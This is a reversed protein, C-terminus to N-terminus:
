STAPRVGVLAIFRVAADPDQRATGALKATAPDKPFRLLASRLLAARIASTRSVGAEAGYDLAFAAAIGGIADPRDLRALAQAASLRVADDSDTLLKQLITAAREPAAAGLADATQWRLQAIAGQLKDKKALSRGREGAAFNGILSVAQKIQQYTSPSALGLGGTLAMTLAAKVFPAIARWISRFGRPDLKWDERTLAAEVAALQSLDGLELLGVRV